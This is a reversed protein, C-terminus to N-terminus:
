GARLVQVVEVVAKPQRQDGDRGDAVSVDVRLGKEPADRADGGTEAAVHHDGEENDGQRVHEVEGDRLLVGEGKHLPELVALVDSLLGDAGHAAGDALPVRLEELRVVPPEHQLRILLHLPLQLVKLQSDVVYLLEHLRVARGLYRPPQNRPQLILHMLQFVPLLPHLLLHVAHDFHHLLLVLPHLHLM